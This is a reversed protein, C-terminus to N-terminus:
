NWCTCCGPIPLKRTLAPIWWQAAPGAFSIRGSRESHCFNRVKGCTQLGASGGARAPLEAISILWVWGRAFEVCRV